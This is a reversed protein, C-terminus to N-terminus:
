TNICLITINVITQIAVPDETLLLSNGFGDDTTLLLGEPSQVSRRYLM